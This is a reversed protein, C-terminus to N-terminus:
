SVFKVLKSDLPRVELVHIPFSLYFVRLICWFESKKRQRGLNPQPNNITRRRKRSDKVWREGGREKEIDTQRGIERQREGAGGGKEKSM